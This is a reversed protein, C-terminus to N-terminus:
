KWLRELNERLRAALSGCETCGWQWVVVGVHNDHNLAQKKVCLHWILSSRPHTKLCCQTANELTTSSQQEPAKHQPLRQCNSLSLKVVAQSRYQLTKWVMRSRVGICISVHSQFTDKKVSVIVIVGTKSTQIARDPASKHAMNLIWGRAFRHLPPPLYQPDSIPGLCRLTVRRRAKGASLCLCFLATGIPVPSCM